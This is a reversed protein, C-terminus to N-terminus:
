PSIVWKPLDHLVEADRSPDTGSPNVFIELIRSSGEGDAGFGGTPGRADVCARLAGIGTIAHESSMIELVVKGM